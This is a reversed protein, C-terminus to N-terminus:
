RGKTLEHLIRTAELREGPTARSDELLSICSKKLKERITVAEREKARRSREHKRRTRAAKEAPSLERVDECTCHEGPDLNAGCVPCTVFYTNRM